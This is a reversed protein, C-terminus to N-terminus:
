SLKTESFERRWDALPRFSPDDKIRAETEALIEEDPRKLDIQERHPQDIYWPTDVFVEIRNGEPDRFYVSLAIGHTVSVLDDVIEAELNEYLAKLDALSNARLSIQNVINFNLDAPRGECLVIQHHDIPDRSLFVLNAGNLVGRDSVPFGLVRTYFDEMKALDHVFIGLHSFSLPPPKAM